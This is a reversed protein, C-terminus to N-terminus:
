DGKVWEGKSAEVDLLRRKMDGMGKNIVDAPVALATTKLRAKYEDLSEVPKEEPWSNEEARMRDDLATWFFYDPPSLDSRYAPLGKGGHLRIGNADEAKRGMKTEFSKPDNDRLLVLTHTQLKISFRIHYRCMRVYEAGCWSSVEEWLRVKGAGIGCLIQFSQGGVRHKLKSPVAFKRGESPLRYSGRKKMLRAKTRARKSTQWTFGKGDIALVKDQWYLKSRLSHKCAYDYADKKNQKTISQKKLGRRWGRNMKQLYRGGSRGSIKNKTKWNKVVMERNVDEYPHAKELKAVVAPLEVLEADSALRKRGAPKERGIFTQMSLLRSVQGASPKRSVAKGAPQAAHARDARFKGVRRAIEGPGLNPDVSKLARALAREEVDMHAPMALSIYHLSGAQAPPVAAAVVWGALHIRFCGALWIGELVRAGLRWLFATGPTALIFV